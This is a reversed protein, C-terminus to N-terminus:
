KEIDFLKYEKIGYPYGFFICKSSRPDFKTRHRSLTSAFCLCGFTRLHNYKTSTSFLIGYPSKNSLLPTPTRNILYVAILVCHNWFKLPLHSQFRLVRAVNFIHQHKREVLGNQQPTDVCSKHHIVGHTTFFSHLNFEAGHDTRVTKICVNFQTKDLAFFSPIHIAVESKNKMLICGLQDVLIM